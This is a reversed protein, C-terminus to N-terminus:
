ALGLRQLGSPGFLRVLVAKMASGLPKQALTPRGPVQSRSPSGRGPPAGRGRGKPRGVRPPTRGAGPAAMRSAAARRTVGALLDGASVLMEEPHSDGAEDDGFAYHGEEGTEDDGEASLDYGWGAAVYEGSQQDWYGAADDEGAADYGALLNQPCAAKAIEAQNHLLRVIGVVLKAKPEKSAVLVRMLKLARPNGCHAASHLKCAGRLLKEPVKGPIMLVPLGIAKAVAPDQLKTCVAKLRELVKAQAIQTCIAKVRHVYLALKDSSLLPIGPLAGSAVEEGKTEALKAKVACARCLRAALAKIAKADYSACLRLPGNNTEVEACALLHDGRKQVTVRLLPPHVYFTMPGKAGSVIYSAM